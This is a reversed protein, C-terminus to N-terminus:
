TPINSDDSKEIESNLEGLKKELKEKEQILETKHLKIIASYEDIKYMSIRTSKEIKQEDGRNWYYNNVSIILMPEGMIHDKTALHEVIFYPLLKVWKKFM